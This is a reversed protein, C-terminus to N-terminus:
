IYLYQTNIFSTCLVCSNIKCNLYSLYLWALLQITSANYLRIRQKGHLFYM